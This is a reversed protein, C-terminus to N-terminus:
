REQPTERWYRKKLEADEVWNGGHKADLLLSDAGQFVEQWRLGDSVILVVNRTKGAMAPSVLGSLVLLGFLSGLKRMLSCKRRTTKNRRPWHRLPSRSCNAQSRRNSAWLRRARSMRASCGRTADRSM